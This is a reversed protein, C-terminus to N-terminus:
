IARKLATQDSNMTNAEMIFHTQLANPYICVYFAHKKKIYFIYASPGKNLKKKGTVVKTM